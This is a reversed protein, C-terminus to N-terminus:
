DFRVIFRQGSGPIPVGSPRLATVEVFVSDPRPQGPIARVYIPIAPQGLSSTAVTRLMFGGGLSATDGPQGFIDTLEYILQRGQLPGDPNLTDLQSVLSVSATDTTLLRASDPPVILLSEAAPVVAFSIVDSTLGGSTVQIRGTGVQKGSIRGTAAEVFILGTDPTRWSFTAAVSDGAQNLARASLQFTDGIEVPPNGGGVSAPARIELLIPTDSDGSLNSCATVGLLAALIRFGATLRDPRRATM